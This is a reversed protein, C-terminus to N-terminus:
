LDVEGESLARRLRRYDDSLYFSLLACVRIALGQYLMEGADDKRGLVEALGHKIAVSLEAQTEPDELFIARIAAGIDACFLLGARDATLQMARHAAILDASRSGIVEPSASASGGSGGVEQIARETVNVGKLVRGVPSKSAKSILDALRDAVSWGRLVPLFGVVFSVSAKGKKWAGEWVESSTVRTHGFRLHAIESAISFRLEWPHLTFPGGDKLHEGGILIFNPRGEYARVGVARDGRSVFGSVGKIGFAFTADALAAGAERHQADGEVLRECFKTLASHNPVKADAIFSQIRDLIHGSRSAPHRMRDFVEQDLLKHVRADPASKVDDDLPSLGGPALISLVQRAAQLLDGDAREAVARVRAPVLPQLRALEALTELHPKGRGRALSLLELLRIRFAQGGGGATLDAKTPPLLDALAESPLKALREALLDEAEVYLGSEVLHEAFAIDIAARAFGESGKVLDRHINRHLIVAAPRIDKEALLGELLAVGEDLTLHWADYLEGITDGRPDSQALLRAARNREDVGVRRVVPTTVCSAVLVSVPDHRDVLVSLLPGCEEFTEGSEGRSEFDLRVVERIRATSDLAPLDKVEAFFSEFKTPADFILDAVRVEDRGLKSRIELSRRPLPLSKIEGADSIGVLACRQDTVLLVFPVEVDGLISCRLRRPTATPLWVLLVEDPALLAALAARDKEDRLRIHRRDVFARPHPANPLLRGLAILRTAAEGKGTPVFFTDGLAIVEDELLRERYRIAQPDLPFVAGDEDTVVLSLGRQSAALWVPKRDNLSGKLALVGAVSTHGADSLLATAADKM